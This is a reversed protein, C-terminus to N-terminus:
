EKNSLNIKLLACVKSEGPTLRPYRQSLTQLFGQHVLQFEQEFRQWDNDGNLNESISSSLPKLDRKLEPHKALLQNANDHLKQLLANKQVLQMAVSTLEKSRQEMMEELHKNRLSLMEREREAREVDFRGQM